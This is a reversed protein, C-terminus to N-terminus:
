RAQPKVGSLIYYPAFTLKGFLRIKTLCNLFFKISLKLFSDNGAHWYGPEIRGQISRSSLQSALAEPKMVHEAWNGTLPDCTNTDKPEILVCSDQRFYDNVVSLIDNKILGRTVRTLHNLDSPNINPRNESIINKRLDYYSMLSDREKQGFEIKKYGYENQTHVLKLKHNIWPNDGNAGSGFVLNLGLESAPIDNCKEIYSSMDYIHEIVDYSCVANLGISRSGLYSILQDIDGRVFEKVGANLDESLVKADDCSVDYIDNYIV